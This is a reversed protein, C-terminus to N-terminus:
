GVERGHEQLGVDLTSTIRLGGRELQPCTEADGCLKTALEERLAWIFHPAIWQQLEPEQPTLIIDEDKAALIEDRSYQTGTLVLRSPDDAM